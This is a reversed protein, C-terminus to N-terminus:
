RTGGKLSALDIRSLARIENKLAEGGPGEVEVEGGKLRLQMSPYGRRLFELYEEAELGLAGLLLPTTDGPVLRHFRKVRYQSPLLSTRGSAILLAIRHNGDGAHITGSVRKGTETSLLYRGEFLTIPFREDFGRQEFSDCLQATARLRKVWATEFLRADDLVEPHWLPCAVRRFWVFYPQEKALELFADLDRRFLERRRRYFAIFAARISIDLRLPSVIPGIELESRPARYFWPNRQRVAQAWDRSESISPLAVTM